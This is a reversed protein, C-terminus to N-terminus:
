SDLKMGGTSTCSYDADSHEPHSDYKRYLFLVSEIGLHYVCYCISETLGRKYM